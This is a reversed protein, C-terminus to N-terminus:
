VFKKNESEREKTQKVAFYYLDEKNEFYTYLSARSVGANRAIKSIQLEGYSTRQFERIIGERIREKKKEALREYRETPM